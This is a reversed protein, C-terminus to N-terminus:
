VCNQRIIHVCPPNRAAHPNMKSIVLAIFKAPTLGIPLDFIDDGAAGEKYEDAHLM